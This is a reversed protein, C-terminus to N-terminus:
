AWVNVFDVEGCQGGGVSGYATDEFEPTTDYEVTVREIRWDRGRELTRNM